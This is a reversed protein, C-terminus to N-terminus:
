FSKKEGAPIYYNQAYENIHDLQSVRPDQENSFHEANFANFQSAESRELETSYMGGYYKYVDNNIKSPLNEGNACIIDGGPVVYNAVSNNIHDNLNKFCPKQELTQEPKITTVEFNEKERTKHHENDNFATEVNAPSENNTSFYEPTYQTMPDILFDAPNLIVPKNCRCKRASRYVAFVIFIIIILISVILVINNMIIISM